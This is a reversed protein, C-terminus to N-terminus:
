ASVGEYVRGGNLDAFAVAGAKIAAKANAYDTNEAVFRNLYKTTTASHTWELEDFVLKGDAGIHAITTGYSSFTKEGSEGEVVAQTYIPRGTRGEFFKIKNM